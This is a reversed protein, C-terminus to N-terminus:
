VIFVIIFDIIIDSSYEVFNEELKKVGETQFQQISKIM